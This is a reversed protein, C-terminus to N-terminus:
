TLSQRPLDPYFSASLLFLLSNVRIM